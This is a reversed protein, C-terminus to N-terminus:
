FENSWREIIWAEQDGQQRKETWKTMKNRFLLKWQFTPYPFLFIYFDCEPTHLIIKIFAVTSFANTLVLIFNEM